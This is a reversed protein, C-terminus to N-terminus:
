VGKRSQVEIFAVEDFAESPQLLGGFLPEGIRLSMKSNIIVQVFAEGAKGSINDFTTCPQGNGDCVTAM